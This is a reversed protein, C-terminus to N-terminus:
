AGDLLSDRCRLDRISPTEHSSKVIIQFIGSGSVRHQPVLAM